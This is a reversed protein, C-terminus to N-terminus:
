YASAIEGENLEWLYGDPDSFYLQVVGDFRVQKHLPINKATLYTEAQAINRVFLAMHSANRDHIIAETRGAMLHIQQGNGVSFWARIAKLNDPVPIPTLGMVDRFFATSVAMDKVHLALHNHGTIGLKTQGVATQAVLLILFLLRM